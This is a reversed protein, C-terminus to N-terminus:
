KNVSNSMLRRFHTFIYQILYYVLCNKLEMSKIFAFEYLIWLWRIQLLFICNIVIIATLDIFHISLALEKRTDEITNGRVTIFFASIVFSKIKLM